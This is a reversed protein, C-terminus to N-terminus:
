AEQCVGSAPPLYTGEVGGISKLHTGCSGRTPKTLAGYTSDVVYLKQFKDFALEM